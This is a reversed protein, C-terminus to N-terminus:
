NAGQYLPVKTCNDQGKVRLSEGEKREKKRRLRERGRSDRHKVQTGQKNDSEQWSILEM